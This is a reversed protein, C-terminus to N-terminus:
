IGWQGKLQNLLQMQKSTDKDSNADPHFKKCLERYFQKLTEKDEADHNSCINESYSSGGSGSFFKSYNSYFEKQYSRSKEEYEQRFRFDTEVEDLKAQNMLNGFVDYIEDYRSSSRDYGYKENFMAKNAAYLTTIRNHEERTIYEETQRYESQIAKILTDVKAQVLDYIMNVSIDLMDAVAMIKKDCYDYLNFWGEAIDYYSVTCLSYQKKKIRGRERYSQHLSIKYAKKIPREFREQSYWHQYYSCDKGQFTMYKFESILEKPHGRKNPKKLEIEQVVCFM